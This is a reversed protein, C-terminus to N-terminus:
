PHDHCFVVPASDSASPPLVPLGIKNNNTPKNKNNKKQQQQATCILSDTVLSHPHATHAITM